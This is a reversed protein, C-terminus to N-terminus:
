KKGQKYKFRYKRFIKSKIETKKSTITKQKDEESMARYKPHKVIENFWELWEKNFKRNAEYYKTDGVKDKFQKLIKGQKYDWDVEASYTNIGIGIGEAILALLIDASHPDANLENYEQIIIPVFLDRLQTLPTPKEGQFNRGKGLDKVFGAAPSLKNEFFNYFLDMGTRANFTDANLKTVIGTTSSKMTGEGWAIPILRSALTILSGMGGTVDFRTNGIKIKGYNASTRDEEVSDPVLAKAMALVAATGIVTKLLSKAARKKTWADVKSDFAHATLFDVNSKFFRMSFFMVNIADASGEWVGLHGRGTQSNVMRGLGKPYHGQEQAIKFYYDFFDMRNRKALGTFATEAALHIKGLIPIKELVDSYPFEEETVNIALEQKIYEDFNDNCFFPIPGEVNDGVYLVKDVKDYLSASGDSHGPSYFIEIEDDHFILRDEFTINPYVIAVEGQKFKKFKKLENEGHIEINKRCKSHAIIDSAPFACNGWIHDWHFHTNFIIINKNPFNESIHQKIEKVSEPGLFTDVIFINDQTNILYVNTAFGDLEYFTFLMGRNGIKTTKM